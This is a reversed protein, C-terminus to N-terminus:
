NPRRAEAGSGVDDILRSLADFIFGNLLNWEIWNCQLWSLSLYEVAASELRDSDIPSPGRWADQRGVLVPNPLKWFQGAKLPHNLNSTLAAQIKDVVKRAHELREAYVEVSLGDQLNSRRASEIAAEYVTGLGSAPDCGGVNSWFESEIRDYREDRM